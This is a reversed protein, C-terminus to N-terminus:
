AAAIVLAPIGSHALVNDGFFRPLPLLDDPVHRSRTPKDLSGPFDSVAVERGFIM